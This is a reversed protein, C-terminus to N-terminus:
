GVTGQSSQVVVILGTQQRGCLVTWLNLVLKSSITMLVIGAPVAEQTQTTPPRKLLLAIMVPVVDLPHGGFSLSWYFSKSCSLVEM